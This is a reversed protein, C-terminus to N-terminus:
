FKITYFFDYIIKLMQAFCTVIMQCHYTACYLNGYIRKASQLVTIFQSTNCYAKSAAICLLVANRGSFPRTAPMKEIRWFLRTQNRNMLKHKNIPNRRSSERGRERSPM